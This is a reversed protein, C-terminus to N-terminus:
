GRAAGAQAETLRGLQVLGRIAARVTERADRLEVGLDTHFASDDTPVWRTLLTMGEHTLPSDVPLVHMLGDMVTGVVRLGVGPVPIVRFRRGTADQLLRAYDPMRVFHGGCMYRRPGRGPTLAAAHIAALDRVDIFSLAGASMVVGHRAYYELAAVSEGIAQGAPPGWVAAPYTIVVPAGEAQRRRVHEEAQAKSRGYASEVRAPPLDASVLKVGPTFVAAVSSVHVIPDLGREVASDIVIETGRPNTALVDAARRREVSVEAAAHVVADCGDIATAVSDADKIDGVVFDDIPVGLPALSQEIRKRNRVLLRVHHGADVIAKVTHAGIFGTGGTVLVKTLEGDM